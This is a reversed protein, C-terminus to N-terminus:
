TDAQDPGALDLTFLEQPRASAACRTAASPSWASASDGCAAALQGLGPDAPRALPEDGSIRGRKAAPSRSCERHSYFRRGVRQCNHLAGPSLAIFDVHTRADAPRGGGGGPRRQQQGAHAWWATASASTNNCVPRASAARRTRSATAASRPSAAAKVRSQAAKTALMGECPQPADPVPSLRSPKRRDPFRQRPAPGPPSPSLRATISGGAQSRRACDVEAGRARKPGFFPARLLCPGALDGEM